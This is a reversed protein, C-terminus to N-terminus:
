EENINRYGFPLTDIIGEIFNWIIKRKSSFINLRTEKECCVTEKHVDLEKKETKFQWQPVTISPQVSKFRKVNHLSVDTEDMKRKTERILELLSEPAFYSELSARMAIGKQKVVVKKETQYAYSKRALGVWNTLLPCELELDGTRFGTRYVPTSTQMHYASDTDVYVLQNGLAQEVRNLMLRGYATIHSVIHDNKKRLGHLASGRQKEYTLTVCQDSYLIASQIQINPDNLIQLTNWSEEETFSSTMSFSDRQGWKGTFANQILKAVTRRAPSDSFEQPSIERNMIHQLYAAVQKGKETFETRQHDVCGGTKAVIKNYMFPVIFSRFLTHSKEPYEWVEVIELITYGISRAYRLETLTWTGIFAREKTSHHCEEQQRTEMCIKCCGYCVQLEGYVGLTRYSLFPAYCDQPPCVLVKAIGLCDKEWQYNEPRFMCIPQGIPLPWQIMRESELDLPDISEGYCVTPYQSVFDVMSCNGPVRLKYLETKGGKYADRPDIGMWLPDMKSEDVDHEWCSILPKDLEKEAEERQKRAMEFTCKLRPHWQGQNGKPFCQLCGNLECSYFAYYHEEDEGIISCGKPDEIKWCHSKGISHLWARAKAQQVKAFRDILAITKEPLCQSFYFAMMASALTMYQFPDFEAFEVEPPREITACMEMTENRFRKLTEGLLLTDSICYEIADNKIDWEEEQACFHNVWEEAELREKESRFDLDFYERSPRQIKGNEPIELVHELTMWKHPFHGKRFEEIGFDSSMSRLTTPIFCLSDRFTLDFKPYDVQLFKRGRCIDQSVWKFKKWLYSKILISDYSRANHAYFTTKQLRPDALFTWFQDTHVGWFVFIFEGKVVRHPYEKLLTEMEPHGYPFSVTVCYPVHRQEQDFCCEFDYVAYLTSPKKLKQRKLFCGESESHEEGCIACETSPQRKKYYGKTCAHLLHNQLCEFSHCKRNCDPCAVTETRTCGPQLCYTCCGTCIHCKPCAEVQVNAKKKKIRKDSEDENKGHKCYPSQIYFQFCKRCVHGQPIKKPSKLHIPFLEIADANPIYDVHNFEKEMGRCIGFITYKEDSYPLLSANPYVLTFSQTELTFGYLCFRVPLMKELEKLVSEQNPLPPLCQKLRTAFGHRFKYKEASKTCHAYSSKSLRLYQLCSPFQNKQDPFRQIFDALGLIIWQEFCENQYPDQLTHIPVFSRKSAIFQDWNGRFKLNTGLLQVSNPQPYYVWILRFGGQLTQASQLKRTIFDLIFDVNFLDFRYRPIGISMESDDELRGELIVSLTDQGSPTFTGLMNQIALYLADFLRRYRPENQTDELRFLDRGRINTEIEQTLQRLGQATIVNRSPTLIFDEEM